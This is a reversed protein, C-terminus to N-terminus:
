PTSIAKQVADWTSPDIGPNKDLKGAALSSVADGLQLLLQRNIVPDRPSDGVSADRRRRFKNLISGFSRRRPKRPNHAQALLLELALLTDSSMADHAM